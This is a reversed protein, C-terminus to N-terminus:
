WINSLNAIPKATVNCTMGARASSSTDSDGVMVTGRECYRILLGVGPQLVPATVLEAVSIARRSPSHIPSPAHLPSSASHLGSSPLFTPFATPSNMAFFPGRCQFLWDCAFQATVQASTGGPATSIVGLM